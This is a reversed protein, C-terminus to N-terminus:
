FLLQPSWIWPRAFIASPRFAEGTSCSSSSTSITPTLWDCVGQPALLAPDLHRGVFSLRSSITEAPSLLVQVVVLCLVLLLGDQPCVRQVECRCHQRPTCSSFLLLMCHAWVFWPSPVSKLNRLVLRLSCSFHSPRCWSLDFSTGSTPLHGPHLGCNMKKSVM